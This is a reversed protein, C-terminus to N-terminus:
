IVQSKRMKSYNKKAPKEEEMFKDILKEPRKSSLISFDPIGRKLFIRMFAPFNHFHNYHNEPYYQQLHIMINDVDEMIIQEPREEVHEVISNVAVLGHQFNGGGRKSIKSHLRIPIRCVVSKETKSIRKTEM